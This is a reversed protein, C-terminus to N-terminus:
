KAFFKHGATKRRAEIKTTRAFVASAKLMGGDPSRRGGDGGASFAVARQSGAPFALV